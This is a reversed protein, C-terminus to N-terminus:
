NFRYCYSQKHYKNWIQQQYKVPVLHHAEMFNKHTKASTFTEHRANKECCYYANQIAIKGLLPNRKYKKSSDDHIRKEHKIKQSTKVRSPSQNRYINM